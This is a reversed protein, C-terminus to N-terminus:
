LVMKIINTIHVDNDTWNTIKYDTDSPSEFIANTDDFRGYPITDMWITYDADFIDRQEKYPAIFDCVVYEYQTNVSLSSLRRAQRIRGDKSFDWDNYSKRISDANLWLVSPLKTILKEAFTTKGSGPLGCILIIMSM